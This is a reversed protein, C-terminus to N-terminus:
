ARLLQFIKGSIEFQHLPTRLIALREKKAADLMDEPVQKNSCIIIAPCEALTAVAITNKHAQITILVAQDPANGMVDSLLDSTYGTAVESDDFDSQVIELQTKTILESLKM